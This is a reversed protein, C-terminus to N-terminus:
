YIRFILLRFKFNFLNGKKKKNRFTTTQNPPGFLVFITALSAFAAIIGFTVNNNNEFM